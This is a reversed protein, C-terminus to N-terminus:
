AQVQQHRALVGKLQEAAFLSCNILVISPAIEDFLALGRADIFTVDKLDLTVPSGAAGAEAHAAHLEDVWRGAIQGELILGYHGASDKQTTIKLM